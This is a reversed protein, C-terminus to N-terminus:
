AKEVEVFIYDGPKLEVKDDGPNYEGGFENGYTFYSNLTYYDFRIEGYNTSVRIYCWEPMNYMIELMEKPIVLKNTGNFSFYEEIFDSYNNLYEDSAYAGPIGFCVPEGNVLVARVYENERVKIYGIGDIHYFIQGGELETAELETDMNEDLYYWVEIVERGDETRGLVNWEEYQEPLVFGPIEEDVGFYKGPIFKNYYRYDGLEDDWLLYVRDTDCMHNKFDDENAFWHHRWSYENYDYFKGGIKIACYKNTVTETRRFEVFTFTGNYYESTHKESDTYGAPASVPSNEDFILYDSIYARVSVYEGNAARYLYINKTIGYADTLTVRVRTFATEKGEVLWSEEGDNATSVELSGIYEKLPVYGEFTLLSEGTEYAGTLIQLQGDLVIAYLTISMSYKDGAANYVVTLDYVMKNHLAEPTEEDPYITYRYRIDSIRWNKLVDDLSATQVSYNSRSYYDYYKGDKLLLSGYYRETEYQYSYSYIDYGSNRSEEADYELFMDAPFRDFDVYVGDIRSSEIVLDGNEDVYIDQTGPNDGDDGMSDFLHYFIDAKEVGIHDMSIEGPNYKVAKRIILAYDEGDITKRAYLEIGAYWDDRVCTDKLIEILENAIVVTGDSLVTMYEKVNFVMNYSTHVHTKQGEYVTEVINGDQEVCYTRVYYGEGVQVYGYYVMGYEYGALMAMNKAGVVYMTNGDSLTMTELNMVNYYRVNYETVYIDDTVKVYYTDPVLRQLTVFTVTEEMKEGGVELTVAEKYEATLDHGISAIDVEEGLVYFTKSPKVYDYKETSYALYVGDSTSIGNFSIQEDGVTLIIRVNYGSMYYASEVSSLTVNNDKFRDDFKYNTYLYNIHIDDNSYYYGCECVCWEGDIMALAGIGTFYVATGEYYADPETGEAPIVSYPNDIFEFLDTKFVFADTEGSDYEYMTNYNYYKGDILILNKVHALRNWFSKPTTYLELGAYNYGYKDLEEGDYPVLIDKLEAEYSGSLAADIEFDSPIGSIVLNGEEDYEYTVDFDVAGFKEPLEVKVTEDRNIKVTLNQITQKDTTGEEEGPILANVFEDVTLSVLKGNKDVTFSFGAKIELFDLYEDKLTTFFERISTERVIVSPVPLDGLLMAKLEEALMAYLQEATPAVFEEEPNEEDVKGDAGTETNVVDDTNELETKEIETYNVGPTSDNDDTGGNVDPMPTNNNDGYGYDPQAYMEEFILAILENLTINYYESIMAEVDFEEGQLQESYIETMVTNILDYLEDLTMIGSESLLTAVKDIVNKVTLTGPLNIQLYEALADVDTLGTDLKLLEDGLLEFILTAVDTDFRAYVWDVVERVADVLPDANISYTTNEGDVTKEMFAEFLVLLDHKSPLEFDEAMNAGTEYGLKLSVYTYLSELADLVELLQEATYECEAAALAANISDAAIDLYKTLEERAIDFYYEAIPNMVEYFAEMYAFAVNLPIFFASDIDTYGVGQDVIDAIMVGNRYYASGEYTVEVRTQEYKDSYDYRFTEVVYDVRALIGEDNRDVYIKLSVDGQGEIAYNFEIVGNDMGILMDYLANVIEEYTEFGLGSITGNSATEKEESLGCRLCYRVKLGKTFDGAAVVVKWDTFNHGLPYTVTRECRTCVSANTCDAVRDLTHGLAREYMYVLDFRDGCDVCIQHWFDGSDCTPTPAIISGYNHKAKPQFDDFTVKLCTDCKYVTYGHTYCNAEVTTVAEYNHYGRRCKMEQTEEYAVAYMSFHPALFTVSGNGEADENYVVGTMKDIAGNDAVYWIVIGDKDELYEVGDDAIYTKLTYPITVTVPKNFTGVNAEDVKVTFDYVDANKLAEKVQADEVGEIAANKKDEDAAGAEIKVNAGGTIQELVETPFEIAASETTVEFPVDTPISGANIAENEALTSADFNSVVKKCDQCEKRVWGDGTNTLELYDHAGTAIVTKNYGFEGCHKCNYVETGDQDCTALTSSARDLAYTHAAATVVSTNVHGCATCKEAQKGDKQCTAAEVVYMAGYTHSALEGTQDYVKYSLECESCTYKTYGFESCTPAFYEGADTPTHTDNKNLATCTNCTVTHTGDGMEHFKEDHDVTNMAQSKTTGCGTCTYTFTGMEICTPNKTVMGEDYAHATMATETGQEVLEGCATCVKDGTYGKSTCTAAKENKVTTTAHQCETTIDGGDDTTGDDPVVPDVVPEKQEDKDKGFVKDIFGCSSFLMCLVLMMAILKVLTSRKM